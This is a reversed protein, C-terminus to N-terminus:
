LQIPIVVKLGECDLEKVLKVVEKEIVYPLPLVRPEKPLSTTWSAPNETELWTKPLDRTYELPADRLDNGGATQSTMEVPRRSDGIEPKIPRAHCDMAEEPASGNQCVRAEDPVHSSGTMVKWIVRKLLMEWALARSGPPVKVM